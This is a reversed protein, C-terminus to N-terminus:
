FGRAKRSGARIVVGKMLARCKRAGSVDREQGSIRESSKEFVERRRSSLMKDLCSGDLQSFGSGCQSPPQNSRDRPLCPRASRAPLWITVCLVTFPCSLRVDRPSVRLCQGPVRVACCGYRYTRSTGGPWRLRYMRCVEGTNSPHRGVFLKYPFPILHDLLAIM